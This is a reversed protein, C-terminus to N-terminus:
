KEYLETFNKGYKDIVYDLYLQIQNKGIVHLVKDKPFQAVKAKWQKTKEAGKVETFSGDPHVFDPYYRHLENEFEYEFYGYYRDFLIDHDLWYIIVALEWSSDCWFGKYWGQKGRGSKSRKGGSKGHKKATQSIKNRREAEKQPDKCKGTLRGEEYARKVGASIKKSAISISVSTEKTLGKNWTSIGVRESHFIKNHEFLKARTHFILNCENCKWTGYPAPKKNFNCKRTGNKKATKTGTLSVFHDKCKKCCFRGSGYSGDHENTCDPNDCKFLGNPLRRAEREEIERQKKNAQFVKCHTKHHSLKVQTEFSKGCECVFKIQTEDTNM